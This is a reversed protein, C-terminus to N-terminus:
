PEPRDSRLGSFLVQSPTSGETNWFSTSHHDNQPVAGGRSITRRRKISFTIKLIQSIYFIDDNDKYSQPLFAEPQSEDICRGVIKM